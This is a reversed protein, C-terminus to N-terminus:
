LYDFAVIVLFVRLARPVKLGDVRQAVTLEDLQGLRKGCDIGFECKSLFQFGGAGEEHDVFGLDFNEPLHKIPWNLALRDGSSLAM